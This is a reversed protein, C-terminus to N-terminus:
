KPIMFRIAIILTAVGGIAGGIFTPFFAYGTLQIGFRDTIWVWMLMFCILSIGLFFGAGMQAFFVAM